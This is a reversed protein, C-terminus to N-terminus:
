PAQPTCTTATAAGEVPVVAARLHGHDAFALFGPEDDGDADGVVAELCAADHAFGILEDSTDPLGASGYLGVFRNQGTALHVEIPGDCPALTEGRTGIRMRTSPGYFWFADGHRVAVGAESGRAAIRAHAGAAYVHRSREVGDPGVDIVIQFAEEDAQRAPALVAIGGDPLAIGDLDGWYRTGEFTPLAALAVPAARGVSVTIRPPGDEDDSRARFVVLRRTAAIVTFGNEDSVSLETRFAGRADVGRVHLPIPGGEPFESITAFALSTGTPARLTARGSPETCSWNEQGESGDTYAADVTSPTPWFMGAPPDIAQALVRVPAFVVGSAAECGGGVCRVTGSNPYADPHGTWTSAWPTWTAGGDSTTFVADFSQGIALGHRRDSFDVSVVGEPLTVATLPGETPGLAVVTDSAYANARGVIWGDITFSLNAVDVESPLSLPTPAADNSLDLVGAVATGDDDDWRVIAHERAIDVLRAGSPLVRERFRTGDHWCVTRPRAEEEAEQRMLEIQEAEAAEEAEREAEYQAEEAAAEEPDQAEDYAREEEEIREADAEERALEEADEDDTSKATSEGGASPDVCHGVGAVSSGDYSFWLGRESEDLEVDGLHVLTALDDSVYVHTPSTGCYVLASDGFMYWRCSTGEQTFHVIGRSPDWAYLTNGDDSTHIASRGSSGGINGTDLPERRVNADEIRQELADDIRMPSALSEPTGGYATVVGGVVSVWGESTRVVFGHATPHRVVRLAPGPLTVRAFTGAAPAVLFTGPAVVAGLAGEDSLAASLIAEAPVGVDGDRVELAHLGTGDVVSRRVGTHRLLLVGPGGEADNVDGRDLDTEEFPGLFDAGSRLIRGGAFAFTWVGDIQAAGLLAEPVSIPAFTVRDGVVRVRSGNTVLLLAGEPDRGVLRAEDAIPAFTQTAWPEDPATYPAPWRGHAPPPPTEAVRATSAGCAVLTAAILAHVLSRANTTM